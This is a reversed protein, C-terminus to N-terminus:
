AVEKIMAEINVYKVGDIEVVTDGGIKAEIEQAIPGVHREGTPDDKYSFRYMGVREGNIAPMYGLFEHFVKTRVDCLSLLGALSSLGGLVQGTTNSYVPTTTNSYGGGNLLNTFNAINQMPLQQDYDWKAIEANLVDQARTDRAEGVGALQQYPLYQNAYTQGAMGAANLRQDNVANQQNNAANAANLRQNNGSLMNAINNQYNSSALNAGALQFDRNSNLANQRASQQSDLIGAYNANAGLRAAQQNDLISAYNQNANLRQSQQSDLINAYNQNANLRQSQQSDLLNGYTQTASLRANQQSDNANSLSNAANLRQSQQSNALDGYLSTGAQRLQQQQADTGALAQNANMRNSVDSNYFNGYQGAANMQNQVDQNYQNGYMETAVKGMENAATTEASNRQRAYAGSGMRGMAAAQSDIGPNTINKLKDAIADQQNSVMRDLYPNNGVNAGSATNKLYDMAPNNGQALSNAQNTQLGAAANTYNGYGQSQALAPNLYNAMGQFQSIAGNSYNQLGAANSAAANTFNQQGAATSAAANQYNQLGAATGAAANQYNQLGAATGAAANTYNQGVNSGNAIGKAIADTPNAGFNMQQQLQSLTQNAQTNTGQTMVGNVANTANTLASTNGNRALNETGNLADLTAKSQNAVTSGEFQKPAGSKILEDFKKYNELLYPKAGDWPEVKTTSEKPSSTM